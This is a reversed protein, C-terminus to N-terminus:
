HFMGALQAAKMETDAGDLLSYLSKLDAESLLIEMGHNFTPLIIPDKLMGSEISNRIQTVVEFFTKYEFPEFMFAANGLRVQYTNCDACQLIYIDESCQYWLRFDCM